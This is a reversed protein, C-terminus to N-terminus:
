HKCNNMVYGSTVYQATSEAAKLMWFPFKHSGSIKSPLSARMDEPMRYVISRRVGMTVDNRLLFMM